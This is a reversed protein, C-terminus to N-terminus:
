QETDKRNAVNGTQSDCCLVGLLRQALRKGNGYKSKVGSNIQNCDVEIDGVINRSLKNGEMTCNSWADFSKINPKQYSSVDAARPPAYWGASSGNNMSWKLNADM